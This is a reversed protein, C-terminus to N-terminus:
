TRYRACARSANANNSSRNSRAITVAHSSRSAHGARISVTEGVSITEINFGRASFLGVIRSLEGPQDAVIISLTHRM